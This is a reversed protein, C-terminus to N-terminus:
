PTPYRKSPKANVTQPKVECRQEFKGGAIVARLESFGEATTVNIANAFRDM